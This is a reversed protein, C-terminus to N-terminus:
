QKSQNPIACGILDGLVTDDALVVPKKAGFWM